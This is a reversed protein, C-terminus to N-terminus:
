SRSILDASEAAILPIDARSIGLDDLERNSLQGLENVTKRYVAYRHFALRLKSMVSDARGYGAASGGHIDIVHAM